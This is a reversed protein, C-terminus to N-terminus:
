SMLEVFVEIKNGFSFVMNNGNLSPTKLASAGTLEQMQPVTLALM